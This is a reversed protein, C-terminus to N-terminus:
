LVFCRCPVEKGGERGGGRQDRDGELQSHAHTHTHTVPTAVGGGGGESGLSHTLTCAHTCTHTHTIPTAVGEVGGSAVVTAHNGQAHMRLLPLTIGKPVYICLTGRAGIRACRHFRFAVKLPQSM